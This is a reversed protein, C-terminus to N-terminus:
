GEKMINIAIVAAGGDTIREPMEELLFKSLKRQERLAGRPALADQWGATWPDDLSLSRDGAWAQMVELVAPTSHMGGVKLEEPLTTLYACFDFIAGAVVGDLSFRAERDTM